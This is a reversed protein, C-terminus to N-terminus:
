AGKRIAEHIRMVIGNYPFPRRVGKAIKRKLRRLKKNSGREKSVAKAACVVPHMWGAGCNLCNVSVERPSYVSTKANCFPCIGVLSKETRETYGKGRLIKDAVKRMHWDERTEGHMRGCAVASRVATKGM